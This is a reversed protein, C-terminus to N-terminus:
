IDRKNNAVKEQSCYSRKQIGPHFKHHNMLNWICIKRHLIGSRCHDLLLSNYSKHLHYFILLFLLICLNHILKNLKCLVKSYLNGLKCLEATNLLNYNNHQKDLPFKHKLFVRYFTHFMHLKMNMKHQLFQLQNYLTCHM